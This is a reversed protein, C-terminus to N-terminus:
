GRRGLGKEPETLMEEMLARVEEIWDASTDVDGLADRENDGQWLNRFNRWFSCAEEINSFKDNVQDANM